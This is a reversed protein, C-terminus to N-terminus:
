KAAKRKALKPPDLTAVEDGEFTAVEAPKSSDAVAEAIKRRVWRYASAETLDYVKGKEFQQELTKRSELFRVKPM